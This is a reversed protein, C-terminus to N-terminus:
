SEIGHKRIIIVASKETRFTRKIALYFYAYIINIVAALAEGFNGLKRLNLKRTIKETRENFIVKDYDIVKLQTNDKIFNLIKGKTIYNITDLGVTPRRLLMLYLKALKRPLLPLWPLRYHGEFTSTYDPFQLILGGGSKAVRIMEQMCREVNSVHELTQYSYVIDFCEDRFPLEEGCAEIFHNRFRVPYNYLKIKMKNFDNKWSCPEVGYVDHGNLLGYFVFTGCGSAMDLVKCNSDVDFFKKMCDYRWKASQDDIWISAVHNICQIDPNKYFLKFENVLNLVIFNYVEKFYNSDM